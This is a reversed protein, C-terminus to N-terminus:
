QPFAQCALGDKSQYCKNCSICRPRHLADNQWIGALNPESILPRSMSVASVPQSRLLNDISEPTRHGGVSIVSARVQQATEVAYQAYYGEKDGAKMLRAARSQPTENIGGSVEIADIGRKDLERCLLLSEEFTLGPNTM